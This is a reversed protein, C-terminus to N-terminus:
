NEPTEESNILQYAGDIVEYIGLSAGAKDLFELTKGEFKITKVANLMGGADSLFGSAKWIQQMEKPLLSSFNLVGDAGQVLEFTLWLGESSALTGGAGFFTTAQGGSVVFIATGVMLQWGGGKTFGDQRSLGADFKVINDAADEAGLYRMLGVIPGDGGHQYWARSNKEEKPKPTLQPAPVPSKATVTVENTQRVVVDGNIKHLTMRVGSSTKETAGFLYQESTTMRYVEGNEDQYERIHIELREAGELEVSNVVVNESFAYPSNFPFYLALPDVAFFRSVRPDHMRYKYNVSNGEGKVEDDMEQGQFGFRGQDGQTRGDLSVGFPSYDAVSSVDVTYGNQADGNVVDRFVTLVNGLHNSLEYYKTGVLTSDYSWLSDAAAPSPLPTLLSLNSNKMGLRSSGYIM